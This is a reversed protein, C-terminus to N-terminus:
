FKENMINVLNKQNQIIINHQSAQWEQALKPQSFLMKLYSLQEMVSQETYRPEMHNKFGWKALTRHQESNGIYVWPVGSYIAQIVKMDIIGSYNKDLAFNEIVIWCQCLYSYEQMRLVNQNNNIRQDKTIKRTGEISRDPRSYLSNNLINLQELRQVIVERQYGYTGYLLFFDYNIDVTKKRQTPLPLESKIFDRYWRGPWYELNCNTPVPWTAPLESEVIVTCSVDGIAKVFIYWIDKRIANDIYIPIGKRCDKVISYVNKLDEKYSVLKYRKAQNYTNPKKLLLAM